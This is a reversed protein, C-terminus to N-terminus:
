NSTGRKKAPKTPSAAPEQAAAKPPLAKQIAELALPAMVRYGKANPHLGDDGLDEKLQGTSDVM